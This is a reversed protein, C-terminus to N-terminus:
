ERSQNFNESRLTRLVEPIWTLEASKIYGKSKDLIASRGLILM